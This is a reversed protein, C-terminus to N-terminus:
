TIISEHRLCSSKRGQLNLGDLFDLFGYYFDLVQLALIIKHFLLDGKVDSARVIFTSIIYISLSYRM